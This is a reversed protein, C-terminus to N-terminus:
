MNFPPLSSSVLITLFSRAGYSRQSCQLKLLGFTTILRESIANPNLKTPKTKKPFDNIGTICSPEMVGTITLAGLIEKSSDILNSNSAMLRMM